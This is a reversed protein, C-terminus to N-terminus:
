NLLISLLNIKNLVVYDARNGLEFFGKVSAHYQSELVAESQILVGHKITLLVRGNFQYADVRAPM